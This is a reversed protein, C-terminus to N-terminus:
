GHSDREAIQGEIGRLRRDISRLARRMLAMTLFVDLWLLLLGLSLFVGRIISQDVLVATVVFGVGIASIISPLVILM